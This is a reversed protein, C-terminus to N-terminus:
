RAFWQYYKQQENGTHIIVIPRGARVRQFNMLLRGTRGNGDEFPHMHEFAIHAKKIDEVNKAGWHDRVWNEILAPVAYYPPAVRGGIVVQCDRLSGAIRPMVHRCLYYHTKLIITIPSDTQNDAQSVLYNWATMADNLAEDSTEGEIANSESLFDLLSKLTHPREPFESPTSAVEDRVKKKKHKRRSM